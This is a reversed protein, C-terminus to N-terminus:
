KMKLFEFNKTNKIIWNKKLTGVRWFKEMCDKNRRSSKVSGKTM